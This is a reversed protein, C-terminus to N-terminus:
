TASTDARIGYGNHTWQVSPIDFIGYNALIRASSEMGHSSQPGKLNLYYQMYMSLM